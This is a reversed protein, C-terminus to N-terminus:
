KKHCVIKTKISSDTYKVIIHILSNIIMPTNFIVIKDIQNEDYSLNISLCADYYLKLISQHRDLGTVSLSDLNMHIEFKGHTNIVSIIHSILLAVVDQYNSSSAYTKFITYDIFIRNTDPIIYVTKSVLEVLSIHQSIHEACKTKLEKKNFITKKTTSYYSEQVQKIDCILGENM